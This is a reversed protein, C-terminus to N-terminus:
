LRQSTMPTVNTSTWCSTINRHPPYSDSRVEPWSVETLVSSSALTHTDAIGASTCYGSVAFLTHNDSKLEGFHQQRGTQPYAESREGWQLTVSIRTAVAVCPVIAGNPTATADLSSTPQSGRSQRSHPEARIESEPKDPQWSLSPHLCFIFIELNCGLIHWTTKLPVVLACFM